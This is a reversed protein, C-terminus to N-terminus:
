DTIVGDLESVNCLINFYSKGFKTTDCLLYSKKSNKIMIRRLNNEEVSMDVANGDGDIGRISFFEVDAKYRSLMLEADSGIYCFSDGLLVGGCCITKIGMSSTAIATKAGNTICILNKFKALHPVLCYATTSADLMIVSGDKIHHVAKSAIINKKDTNESNRIFMPIRKDASDTRLSVVGRKCIVLDKERMESIDRRVTPESIYLLKALESVSREKEGLLKIYSNERQYISMKIVQEIMIIM